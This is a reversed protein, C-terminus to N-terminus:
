ATAQAWAGARTSLDLILGKEGGMNFSYEYKCM